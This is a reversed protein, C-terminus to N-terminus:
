ASLFDLNNLYLRMWFSVWINEENKYCLIICKAFIWNEANSVSSHLLWKLKNELIYAKFLMRPATKLNSIFISLFRFFVNTTIKQKLFKSLNPFIFQFVPLPSISIKFHTIYFSHYNSFLELDSTLKWNELIKKKKKGTKGTYVWDCNVEKPTM